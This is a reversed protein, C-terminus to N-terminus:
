VHHELRWGHTDNALTASQREGLALALQLSAPLTLRQEPCAATDPSLTFHPEGDVPLRLTLAISHDMQLEDAFTQYEQPLAQDSHVVMVRDEGQMLRAYGDILAMPFSWEGAAVASFARTNKTFISFLGAAANHVSLGFGTPSLEEEHAVGDLLEATKHLDGHRSAFICPLAAPYNETVRKATHLTMRAFPSLRRRQIAPVWGLDFSEGHIFDPCEIAFSDSKGSQVWVYLNEIVFKM